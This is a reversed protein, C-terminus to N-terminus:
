SALALAHPESIWNRIFSRPGLSEIFARWEAQHRAVLRNLLSEADQTHLQQSKALLFAARRLSTAHVPSGYLGALHDLHLTGAIAYERLAPTIKDFNRAVGEEFTRASLNEWVYTKKPESLGAAHVSLRRLMCAACIGCQRKEGDVSVQRSQQWCSWADLASADKSEAAYDALTEGKTKWLRPFRFKISRGFLADFYKEMRDTYLPHNRYDEYGHGVAVLASGLAGQGSEPVIIEPANILYAAVGSVTAFKFGRSRASTEGTSKGTWVQYPVSTFPQRGRAQGQDVSRSGLRVRVLASKLKRAEIGAVALSDMGDSFPIVAQTNPPIDLLAQRPADEPKKRAVFTITWRDGTLFNLADTLSERVDQRAWRALEHVPIRVEIARGWGLAPRKRIRDCFEIAAAVVLADFIVPRWTSLCYSELQATDFRLNERLLCPTWKASARQGRELVAVRVLPLGTVPDIESM